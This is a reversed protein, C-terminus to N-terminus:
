FVLWDYQLILVKMEFFSLTFFKLSSLLYMVTSIGPDDDVPPLQPLSVAADSPIDYEAHDDYSVM